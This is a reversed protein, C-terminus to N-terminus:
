IVYIWIQNSLYFMYFAPKAVFATKMKSFHVVLGYLPLCASRVVIKCTACMEVNSQTNYWTTSRSSPLSLPVAYNQNFRFYVQYKVPTKLVFCCVCANAKFRCICIGMWSLDFQQEGAELVSVGKRPGVQNSIAVIIKHIITIVEIRM